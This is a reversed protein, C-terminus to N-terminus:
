LNAEDTVLPPYKGWINCDDCIQQKGSLLDQQYVHIISGCVCTCAWREHIMDDFYIGLVPYIVTLLGFVRGEEVETYKM